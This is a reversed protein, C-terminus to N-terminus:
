DLPWQLAALGNISVERLAKPDLSAMKKQRIFRQRVAQRGGVAGAIAWGASGTGDIPAVLTTAAVSLSQTEATIDEAGKHEGMTDEQEKRTRKEARRARRELKRIRREEKTESIRDSPAFAAAKESTTDKPYKKKSGKNPKIETSVTLATNAAKATAKMGEIKDGILYGGRIFQCPAWRQGVYLKGGLNVRAQQTKQIEKESKGNLRGLLDQFSGLGFNEGEVHARKAGLGLTDDKLVARIHSANASTYHEAHAADM